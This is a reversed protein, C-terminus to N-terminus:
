FLLNSLVLIYNRTGLISSIVRGSPSVVCVRVCTHVCMCAPPAWPERKAEPSMSCYSVRLMAWRGRLEWKWHNMTLSQFFKLIVKNNKFFAIGL